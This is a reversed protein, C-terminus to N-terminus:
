RVQCLYTIQVCYDPYLPAVMAAVMEPPHAKLLGKLLSQHEAPIPEMLTGISAKSGRREITEFGNEYLMKEFQPFPVSQIFGPRKSDYDKSIVLFGRENLVRYMKSLLLRGHEISLGNMKEFCVLYDFFNNKFPLEDQVSHQIFLSPVREVKVGSVRDDVARSDLGWYFFQKHDDGINSDLIHRFYGSSCGIDLIRLIKQPQKLLHEVFAMHKFLYHWTHRDNRFNGTSVDSVFNDLVLPYESDIEKSVSGKDVIFLKNDLEESITPPAMFADLLSKKTQEDLKNLKQVTQNKLDDALKLQEEAQLHNGLKQWCAALDLHLQPNAPSYLITNQLTDAAQQYDQSKFAIVGLLHLASTSKPDESLITECLKQASPYEGLNFYYYAKAIYEKLPSLGNTITQNIESVSENVIQAVPEFSKAYHKYIGVEDAHVLACNFVFHKNHGLFRNINSLQKEPEKVLKEYDVTIIDDAFASQWHAMLLAQQQYYSALNKMDYSYAHGQIFYKFYLLVCTDLPSRQCYIIKAKPFLRKILGLYMFNGPMTDTFYDGTHNGDRMLRKLYLARLLNAQKQTLSKLWYPYNGVPRDELPIFDVWQAIGVEGKAEIKSDQSLLSELLSKGSRSTGVIILPQPGNDDTFTFNDNPVTQSLKIIQQIHNAFVNPKFIVKKAQLQNGSEYYSFARQYDQCDHYIKGLSFDYHISDEPSIKEEILELIKVLDPDNLLEYRRCLTLNRWNTPLRPNLSLSRRLLVEAKKLENLEIYTGALNTIAPIYDPSIALAREYYPIAKLLQRDMTLAAGLNSLLPLDDPALQYGKEYSRIAEILKNQLHYVVGLNYYAKVNQANLELVTNFMNIAEPYKKQKEYLSGLNFHAKEHQPNLKICQLYASEASSSHSQAKHIQACIYYYESQSANLAIATHIAKEAQSFNKTDLQLLAALCHADPADEFEALCQEIVLIAGNFDKQERLAHAKQLFQSLPEQSKM